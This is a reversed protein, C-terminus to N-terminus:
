DIYILYVFDDKLLTSIIDEKTLRKTNMFKVLESIKMFSEVKFKKDEM